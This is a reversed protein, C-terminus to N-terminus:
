VLFYYVVILMNQIALLLVWGPYQCDVCNSLKEQSAVTLLGYLLVSMGLSEVIRLSLLFAM